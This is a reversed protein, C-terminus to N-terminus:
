PILKEVTNAALNFAQQTASNSPANCALTRIQYVVTQLSALPILPFDPRRNMEVILESNKALSLNM